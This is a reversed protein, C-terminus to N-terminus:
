GRGLLIKLFPVLGGLLVALVTGLCALLLNVGWLRLGWPLLTTGILQGLLGGLLGAAVTKLRGSPMVVPILRHGLVTVAIALFLLLLFGLFIRM